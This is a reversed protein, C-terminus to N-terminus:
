KDKKPGAEEPISKEKKSTNDSTDNTKSDSPHSSV